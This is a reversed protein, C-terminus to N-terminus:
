FEACARDFGGGTTGGCKQPAFICGNEFGRFVKASNFFLRLRCKCVADKVIFLKNYIKM